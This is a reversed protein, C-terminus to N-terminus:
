GVVTFGSLSSGSVTYRALLTGDTAKLVSITSVDPVYIFGDELVFPHAAPGGSHPAYQMLPLKANFPQSPLHSTSRTSSLTTTAPQSIFALQGWLPTHTATDFAEISQSQGDPALIGIYLTSATAVLQAILGGTNASWLQQGTRANLAFLTGDTAGAYVVNDKITPTAQLSSTTTMHWLEQGTHANFAYLYCGPFGSSQKTVNCSAFSLINGKIVPTMSAEQDTYMLLNQQWLLAGTAANLAFFHQYSVGYVVGNALAIWATGGSLDYSWAMAGNSANIADLSCTGSSFDCFSEYLTTQNSILFGNGAHQIRWIQAGTKANAAELFSDTTDANEFFLTNGIVLPSLPQSAPITWLIKSTKLDVRSLGGPTAEYLSGQPLRQGPAPSGITPTPTPAGGSAMAPQSSSRLVLGAACVGALLLLALAIGVGTVRRHRPRKAPQQTLKAAHPQETSYSDM